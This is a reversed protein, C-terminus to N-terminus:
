SGLHDALPPVVDHVIFDYITRLTAIMSGAPTFGGRDTEFSPTGDPFVVDLTPHVHMNMEPYAPSAEVTLSGIHTRGEVRSTFVEFAIESTGPGIARRIADVDRLNVGAFAVVGAHLFRHRSIRALEHLIWLPHIKFDDGRQYPQLREVIAQADPPLGRIRKRGYLGFLRAGDVPTGQRDVNGFMPFECDGAVDDPLPRTFVVALEFVLYNLATNLNSLCDAALVSFPGPDFPEPDIWFHYTRAEVDFDSFIRYPEADRWRGVQIDLEELHTLARTLALEHDASWGPITVM